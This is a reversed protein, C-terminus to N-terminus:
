YVRDYYGEPIPVRKNQQIRKRIYKELRRAGAVSFDYDDERNIHIFEYLPFGQDFHNKYKNVARDIIDEAGYEFSFM